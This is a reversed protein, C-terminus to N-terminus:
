LSDRSAKQSRASCAFCFPSSAPVRRRSGIAPIRTTIRAITNIGANIDNQCACPLQNVVFVSPFPFSILRNYQFILANASLKRFSWLPMPTTSIMRIRTFIKVPFDTHIEHIYLPPIPLFLVTYVPSIYKTYSLRYATQRYVTGRYVTKRYVTFRVITTTGIDLFSPKLTM